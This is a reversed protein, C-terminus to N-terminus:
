SILYALETRWANPDPEDAPDTQYSEYMAVWVEGDRALTLGQEAAWDVLALHTQAIGDPHGVHTTVVYDGAPFEGALVRDDGSVATAVPYGVEVDFKEEFSGIVRYRYYPAGAPRSSHAALWELVEPGLANVEGWEALTATTRIGATPQAGRKEVRM